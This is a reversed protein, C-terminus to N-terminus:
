DRSLICAVAVYAAAFPVADAIRLQKLVDLPDRWRFVHSSEIVRQRLLPTCAHRWTSIREQLQELVQQGQQPYHQAVPLLQSAVETRLAQIRSTVHSARTQLDRTWAAMVNDNSSLRAETQTEFERTNHVLSASQCSADQTMKETQLCVTQQSPLIHCQTEQFSLQAEAQVSQSRTDAEAQASQDCCAVSVQCSQSLLDAEAQIAQSVVAPAAQSSQSCLAAHSTQSSQYAVSAETQVCQNHVAAACTQASQTSLVASPTQASQTHVDAQAQTYQDCVAISSAQTQVLQSSVATSAQVGQTTCTAAAQSSVDAVAAQAQMCADTTDTQAQMCADVVDTQAQSCAHAVDVQAQMCADTLSFYPSTTTQMSKSKSEAQVGAQLAADTFRTTMSPGALMCQVAIDSSSVVDPVSFEAFNLEQALSSVAAPAPTAPASSFVESASSSDLQPAQALQDLAEALKQETM